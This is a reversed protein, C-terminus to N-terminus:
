QEAAPLYVEMVTGLGPESSVGVYGGHNKVIGYVAALGLGRGPFKTSFFPEFIRAKTEPSMGEGDDRLTLCVHPGEALGKRGVTYAADVDVNRTAVLIKGTEKIAEAANLSLSMVIQSMQMPDAAIPWLGPSLDAETTIRPPFSLRELQFTTRVVENMDVIRTEYKGGRAFALMKQALEGAQRASAGITRLMRLSTDDLSARLELLQANGLVGVMLNNFEHAIGRALTATAEMRSAVLVAQEAEKRQSVDRITGVEATPSSGDDSLFATSEAYWRYAGSKHQFRYEIQNPQNNNYGHSAYRTRYKIFKQRDEPHVRDLYGQAGMAMIDAPTFGSVAAASPSVYEYNGSALELKYAIDMSNELILRFREESERLALQARRLETIDRSIGIIGAINGDADHLPTKFTMVWHTEGSKHVVQEVKDLLPRGTDLVERDNRYYEEALDHPFFDFDTKGIVGAMSTVGLVNMHSVNSNIFRGQLDKIYIHDPLSDMLMRLLNREEALAKETAKLKSIDTFVALSGRIEGNPGELPAPSVLAAVPQGDQRVFDLQCSAGRANPALPFLGRHQPQVFELISRGLLDHRNQDIMRAFKDNIYVISGAEDLVGLGENMAEVIMHYREESQKLADEALQRRHVERELFLVRARLADHDAPATGDPAAVGEPVAGFPGSDEVLGGKYVPWLFVGAWGGARVPPGV